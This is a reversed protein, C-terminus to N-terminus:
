NPSEGRSGGRGAARDIQPLIIKRWAASGPDILEFHGGPTVIAKAGHGLRVAYRNGFEGPVIPDRAGSIIVPGPEVSKLRAPSTDGYVDGGRAADVLDDITGPGGCRDPGHARFDELDNIGALSIVGRPAIPVDLWLPSAKPLRGRAAAWTALHGGASHGVFVVRKLDLKRERSFARLHDVGQAVDQFTGPYGGGPHGIRRYELNWVAYGRDRLDAALYDMLELGPLNAQWCGGHILVVVPSRHSTRAKPLWLEGFQRPDAGYAIREDAAQRPRGLLDSFTLLPATDDATAAVVPDIARGREVSGCAVLGLCALVGLAM